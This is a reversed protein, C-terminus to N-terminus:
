LRQGTEPPQMPVARDVTQKDETTYFLQVLDDAEAGLIKASIEIHSGLVAESDGPQIDDITVRSPRTIDAWPISVRQLTQFVNKPSFITYGAFLIMLAVVVYGMRILRSQDVALDINVQRLDLAARQQLARYVLRGTPTPDRRFMLFNILSNKLSPDSQEIARAAYSPNIPRLLLPLVLRVCYYGTGVVLIGLALSRGATGLDVVWHDLLVLALAYIIVAGVLGMLIAGLDVLKVRRRTRALQQDIIRDSQM